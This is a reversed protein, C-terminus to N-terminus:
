HGVHIQGGPHDRPRLGVDNRFRQDLGRRDRLRLIISRRLHHEFSREKAKRRQTVEGDQGRNGTEMSKEEIQSTSNQRCTGSM